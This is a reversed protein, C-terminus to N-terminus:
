VSTRTATQLIEQVDLVAAVDEFHVKWGQFPNKAYYPGDTTKEDVFVVALRYAEGQNMGM